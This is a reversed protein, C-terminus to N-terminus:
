INAYKGLLKDESKKADDKKATKAMSTISADGNVKNYWM